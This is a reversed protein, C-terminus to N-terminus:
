PRVEDVRCSATNIGLASCRPDLGGLTIIATVTQGVKSAKVTIKSTGQGSLVTGGKLSWTYVLKLDTYGGSVTAEFDIPQKLDVVAPCSVSITPCPSEGPVCDSCRTVTVKTEGYAIHQNGDNVEVTATYAGEALGSLDWMVKNGEGSLRGVTVNWTFLLAADVEPSGATASLEVESGTSCGHFSHQYPPCVTVSSLSSKLHVIPPEWIPPPKRKRIPRRRVPKSQKQATNPTSSASQVTTDPLVAKTSQGPLSLILLACGLTILGASRAPLKSLQRKMM